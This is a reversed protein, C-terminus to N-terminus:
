TTANIFLGTAALAAAMSIVAPNGMTSGSITQKAVPDAGYFGVDDLLRTSGAITADGLIATIPADIQAVGPSKLVLRDNWLVVKVTGDANQIVANDTDEEAIVAKMADPFFVADSFSHLRSTNPQEEALSQLFLSIDRDSAKIWGLNNAVLPFSMSFGGGGFQFVPIEFTGRSVAQGDTTVMSILPQVVVRNATRDYSIVRAPIMDDVSQLFKRYSELLLGCLSDESSARHSPPSNKSM